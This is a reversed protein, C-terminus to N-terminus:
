AVNDIGTAPTNRIETRDAWKLNSHRSYAMSLSPANCSSVHARNNGRSPSKRAVRFATLGSLIVTVMIRAFYFRSFITFPSSEGSM